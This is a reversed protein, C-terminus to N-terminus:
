NRTIKNNISSVFGILCILGIVLLVWSEWGWGISSSFKIPLYLCPLGLVLYFWKLKKNINAEEEKSYVRVEPIWKMRESCSKCLSVDKEVGRALGAGMDVDGIEFGRGIGVQGVVRPAFYFDKSDCRPCQWYGPTIKPSMGIIRYGLKEAQISNLQIFDTDQCSFLM